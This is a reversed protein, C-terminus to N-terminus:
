VVPGRNPANYSSGRGEDDEYEEEGISIKQDLIESRHSALTIAFAGLLISEVFCIFSTFREGNVSMGSAQRDDIYGLLLFFLLLFMQSAAVVSGMFFGVAVSTQFKRM